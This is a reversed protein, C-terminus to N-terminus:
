SLHFPINALLTTLQTFTVCRLLHNHNYNRVHSITIFRIVLGLPTEPVWVRYLQNDSTTSSRLM